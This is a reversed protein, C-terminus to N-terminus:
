LKENVIKSLSKGEKTTLVRGFGNLKVEGELVLDSSCLGLSERDRTFKM